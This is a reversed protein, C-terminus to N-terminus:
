EAWYAKLAPSGGSVECYAPRDQQTKQAAYLLGIHADSHKAKAMDKSAFEPLFQIVAVRVEQENDAQDPDFSDVVDKDTNELKAVDTCM